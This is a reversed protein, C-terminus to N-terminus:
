KAVVTYWVDGNAQTESVVTYDGPILIWPGGFAEEGAEPWEGTYCMKDELPNYNVFTGGTIVIRNTNNKNTGIHLLDPTKDVTNEFFGGNIEVRANSTAMVIGADDVNSTFTGGNIVIKANNQALSHFAMGNLTTTVTANYTGGNVVIEAGGKSAMFGKGCDVVGEGEITLTGGNQMGFVFQNKNGATVTKGNLDLVNETGEGFYIINDATLDDSLYYEGSTGKAASIDAYSGVVDRIVPANDSWPHSAVTIDGFAADLAVEANEFGATQVAQSFVLIDYTGNDNGDLAEVDENTAENALYVQGLSNYTFEGAPLIGGVHRTDSGKYIAEFLYYNNGDVEIIGIGNWTWFDGTSIGIIDKTNSGYELAILTRVYADTKGTNEVVVFKDQVNNLGAFPAQGGRAKTYDALQEWRVSTSDWGTITGTAPYLPKAQTFEQIKYSEVTTGDNKTVTIKEYDGNADVVREYEHQAISVNGLTMVNVDSDSDQLYAITGGIALAAVLVYATCMLLVKKIKSM